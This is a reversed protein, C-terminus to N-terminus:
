QQIAEASNPLESLKSIDRLAEEYGFARVRALGDLVWKQADDDTLRGEGLSIDLPCALFLQFETFINGNRLAGEASSKAPGDQMEAVFGDAHMGALWPKDAPIEVGRGFIRDNM